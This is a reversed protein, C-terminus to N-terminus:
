QNHHAEIFLEPGTGELIYTMLKGGIIFALTPDAGVHRIKKGYKRFYKVFSINEPCLKVLAKVVSTFEAIEEPKLREKIVGSTKANCWGDPTVSAMCWSAPDTDLKRYPLPEIM